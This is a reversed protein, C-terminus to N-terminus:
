SSRQVPLSSLCPHCSRRSSTMREFAGCAVYTACCEMRALYLDIVDDGACPEFVGRLSIAHLVELRIYMM